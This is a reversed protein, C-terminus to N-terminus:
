VNINEKDNLSFLGREKQTNHVSTHQLDGEVVITNSNNNHYDFAKHQQFKSVFQMTYLKVIANDM